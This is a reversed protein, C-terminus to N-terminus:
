GEEVTFKSDRTINQLNPAASSWRGTNTFGFRTHLRGKYDTDRFAPVYTSINKMLSRYRLIKNTLPLNLPKLSDESVSDKDSKTKRTGVIGMTRLAEAVQPNSNLNEIHLEALLEQELPIVKEMVSQEVRTLAYQDILIGWGEMEILLEICPKDITRYLETKPLRSELEYTNCAHTICIKGLEVHSIGINGQNPKKWLSTVSPCPKHLIAGSLDALSNDLIGSSYAMMKTDEYHDVVYGLGRLLAIDFKGNHTVVYGGSGLIAGMMPDRLNFFYFGMSPSVAIGIGLPLPNDISVTEIDVAIKPKPSLLIQEAEEQSLPTERSHVAFYRIV